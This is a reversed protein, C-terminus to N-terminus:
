HVLFPPSRVTYMGRTSAKNLLLLCANEHKCSPRLVAAPMESGGRWSKPHSSLSVSMLLGDSDSSFPPTLQAIYAGLGGYRRRRQWSLRM